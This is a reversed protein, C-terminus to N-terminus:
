LRLLSVVSDGVQEVVKCYGEVSELFGNFSLLLSIFESVQRRKKKKEERIIM